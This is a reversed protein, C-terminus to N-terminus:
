ANELRIINLINRSISLYIIIIIIFLRVKFQYITSVKGILDRGIGSVLLFNIHNITDM